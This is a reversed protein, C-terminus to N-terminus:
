IRRWTAAGSGWGHRCPRGLDLESAVASRQDHAEVIALAVLQRGFVQPHLARAGLPLAMRRGLALVHRALLVHHHELDVRDAVIRHPEHEVVHMRGPDVAPVIEEIEAAVLAGVPLGIEVLQGDLSKRAVRHLAPSKYGPHLVYPPCLRPVRRAWAALPAAYH